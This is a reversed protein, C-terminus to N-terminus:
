KRHLELKVTKAAKYDELNKDSLSIAEFKVPAGAKAVSKGEVNEVPITGAKIKYVQQGEANYGVIYIKEASLVYDLGTNIETAAEASGNIKFRPTLDSKNTIKEFELSVPEVVKINSEEFKIAKGNLSKASDEIKTKWEESMKTAKEILKAKEAETRINQAEETLKNKETQFQEYVGTLSGFLPTGSSGAGGSCSYLLPMVIAAFAMLKMTKM